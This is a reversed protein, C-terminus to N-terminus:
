RHSRSLCVDAKQGMNTLHITEQKFKVRLLRSLWIAFARRIPQYTTSNVKYQLLQIHERLEDPTTCRELAILHGVLNDPNAQSYQMM